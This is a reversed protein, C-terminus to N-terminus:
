LGYDLVTVPDGVDVAGLEAYAGGLEVDLVAEEEVSPRDLEEADAKMVVHAAYARGHMEARELALELDELAESDVGYASRVIGRRRLEQLKSVVHSEEDVVLGEVHPALALGLEVVGAEVVLPVLAVEAVEDAAVAVM